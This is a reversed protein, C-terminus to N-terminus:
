RPGARVRLQYRGRGSADFANARVVYLGRQRVTHEILSDTGEGGDDNQVDTGDPSVLWLYTDLEVSKMAIRVVWGAELYFTYDDYVSGDEEIRRDDDTLEGLLDMSVRPLEGLAALQRAAVGPSSSLRAVAARCAGQHRAVDDEGAEDPPPVGQLRALAIRLGVCARRAAEVREDAFTRQALREISERRAEPSSADDIAALGRVLLEGEPEDEVPTAVDSSSAPSLVSPATTACASLSVALACSALRM